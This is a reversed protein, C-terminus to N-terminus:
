PLDAQPLAVMVHIGKGGTLKPWTSLGEGDLIKRM